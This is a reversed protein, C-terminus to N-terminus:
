VSGGGIWLGLQGNGPLLNGTLRSFNRNAPFKARADCRRAAIRQMECGSDLLILTNARIKKPTARARVRSPGPVPMRKSGIRLGDHGAM